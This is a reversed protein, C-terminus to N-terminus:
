PIMGPTLWSPVGGDDRQESLSEFGAKMKLYRLRGADPLVLRQEHVIDDFTSLGAAAQIVLFENPDGYVRRAALTHDRREDPKTEYVICGGAYPNARVANGRVLHWFYRIAAPNSDLIM